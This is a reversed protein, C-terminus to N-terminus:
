AEVVRLLAAEARLRVTLLAESGPAGWHLREGAGAAAAAGWGRSRWPGASVPVRRM